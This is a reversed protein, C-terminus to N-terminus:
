LAQADGYAAQAEVEPIFVDFDPGFQRFYLLSYARQFVLLPLMLVTGLYPIACICCAVCCTVCFATMVIAGIAMAIVIQFLIYLAFKGKNGTLLKWFERWANTCTFGRLYMIPVVFDLTFKWFLAFAIVAPVIILLSILILAVIAPPGVHAGTGVAAVAILVIVGILLIFFIASIIGVVIRFLFLSNGLDRYKHWPVKVEAKNLAVCHLFMFKGRSNLWSIVLGIVILLVVGVIISPIIWHLNNLVFEKVEELVQNYQQGSQDFTNGFNFNPGGGGGGEGLFALFACFGIVFWKGIEFPKFLILKVREIAPSIPDIVSIRPLQEPTM